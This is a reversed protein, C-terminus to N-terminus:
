VGGKLHLVWNVRLKIFPAESTEFGHGQVDFGPKLTRREFAVVQAAVLRIEERALRLPPSTCETSGTSGTSSLQGM